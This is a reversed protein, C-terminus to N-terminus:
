LSGFLSPYPPFYLIVVERQLRSLKSTLESLQDLSSSNKEFLESKENLLKENKSMLTEIKEELRNITQEHNSTSVRSSTMSNAAALQNKLTMVETTTKDYDSVMEAVSEIIQKGKLKLSSDGTLSGTSQPGGM